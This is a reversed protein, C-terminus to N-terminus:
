QRNRFADALEDNILVNGFWGQSDVSRVKMLRLVAEVLEDHSMRKIEEETLGSYANLLM